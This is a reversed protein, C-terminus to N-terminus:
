NPVCSRTRRDFRCNPARRCQRRRLNSCRAGSSAGAGALPSQPSPVCQGGGPALRRTKGVWLCAGQSKRNCARRVRFRSCDTLDGPQGVIDGLNGGPISGPNADDPIDGDDPIPPNPKPESPQNPGGPGNPDVAGAPGIPQGTPQDSARDQILDKPAFPGWYQYPRRVWWPRDFIYRFRQCWCGDQKGDSPVHNDMHSRIQFLAAPRFTNSCTLVPHMVGGPVGPGAPAHIHDSGANHGIEHMVLGVNCGLTAQTVQSLGYEKTGGRFDGPLSECATDLFAVGIVSGDINKETLLHVIGRRDGVLPPSEWRERLEYILDVHNTSVYPWGYGTSTKAIHYKLKMEIGIQSQYNAKSLNMIRTAKAMATARNDGNALMFERDLEVIVEMALTSWRPCAPYAKALKRGHVAKEIWEDEHHHTGNGHVHDLKHEHKEKAPDLAVDVGPMKIEGPNTVCLLQGGSGREAQLLTSEIDRVLGGDVEGNEDYTVASWRPDSSEEANWGQLVRNEGSPLPNKEGAALRKQVEEMGESNPCAHFSMSRGDALDWKTLQCGTEKDPGPGMRVTCPVTKVPNPTTTPQALATGLGGSALAAVALVGAACATGCRSRRM